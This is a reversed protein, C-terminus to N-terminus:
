GDRLRAEMNSLLELSDALKARVAAVEELTVEGQPYPMVLDEGIGTLLWRLSVNLVGALMSVRNARPESMDDEWELITRQKVGLRKALAEQTLGAAERAATIRDGLTAKDDAYWEPAVPTATDDM